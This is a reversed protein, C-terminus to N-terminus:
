QGNLNKREKKDRGLGNVPLLGLLLHKGETSLLHWLRSCVTSHGGKLLKSFTQSGNITGEWEVTTCADDDREQVPEVTFGVLRRLLNRFLSSKVYVKIDGENHINYAIHVFIPVNILVARTQM